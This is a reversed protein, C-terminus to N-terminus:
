VLKAYTATNLEILNFLSVSKVIGKQLYPLPRKKHITILIKIKFILIQKMKVM